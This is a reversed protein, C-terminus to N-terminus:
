PAPLVRADRYDEALRNRRRKQNDMLNGVEVYSVLQQAGERQNSTVGVYAAPYLGQIYTNIAKIYTAAQSAIESCNNINIRGTNREPDAFGSPLYIRGRRALGRRLGTNLSVVVSDQPSVSFQGQGSLPSLYDYQKADEIYKGDVGILALKIDTIRNYPVMAATYGTYFANVAETLEEPDMAQFLQAAATADTTVLSLGNSWIDENAVSGNVTMRIFPKQYVM